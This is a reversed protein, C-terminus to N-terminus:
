DRKLQCKKARGIAPELIKIKKSKGWNCQFKNEDNIICLNCSPCDSTLIKQM